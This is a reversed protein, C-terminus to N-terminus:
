VMSDNVYRHLWLRMQQTARSRPRDIPYILRIPITTTPLFPKFVLDGFKGSKEITRDVLAIGAGTSVMLCAAFSSSAEIDIHPPTLKNKICAEDILAGLRTRPGTSIISEKSIDSVRLNKRKNLKHHKPLVGAIESEILLESEVTADNVPAYVLGFDAERRSVMAIALPTPLSHVSIQVKPSSKKLAAIAQPLFANVLTPSTAIVLKGSRGDRLDDMMRTITDIRGFIEELDPQLSLCEPTPQLRGHRREFLPMQLQQETHKLVASVAPQTINLSRAAGTISGMKLIAYLTELQRLTM